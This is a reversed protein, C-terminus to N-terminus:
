GEIWHLHLYCFLSVFTVLDDLLKVKNLLLFKEEGARELSTTVLNLLGLLLYLTPQQQTGPDGFERPRDM